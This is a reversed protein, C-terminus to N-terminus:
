KDLIKEIEERTLTERKLLEEALKKVRAKNKSLISITKKYAASIWDKIEADVAEATKESANELANRGWHEVQNVAMAGIKSSMGWATIARRAVYTAKAIDGEAGATIKDAGFFLEEAARGALDINLDARIEELTLSVKDDVPLYQVM